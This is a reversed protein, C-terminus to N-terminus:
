ELKRAVPDSLCSDAGRYLSYILGLPNHHRDLLERRLRFLVHGVKNRLGGAFFQEFFRRALEGAFVAPLETQAGVVSSAGLGLFTNGFGKYFVSNLQGSGCANLFVLPSSAFDKMGIWLEIDAPTIRAAVPDQERDSLVLYSQDIRFATFDGEQEAHCCFFLVHDDARGNRLAEALAGRTLRERRDVARDDYGELLDLVPAICPVGLMEDITRDLQLGVALPGQLARLEHGLGGAGPPAHEILHQYGWFGEPRVNGGDLDLPDSYLLSWPVFFDDATVRLWRAKRSMREQLVRGIRQLGAYAERSGAPRPYFLNLFLKAGAEAVKPLVAQLPGPDAAFDWRNQFPQEGHWWFDVVHMRWAERCAQVYGWLESRTVPLDHELDDGFAAELEPDTTQVSLHFREGAPEILLNLDRPENTEHVGRVLGFGSSADHDVVPALHAEPM